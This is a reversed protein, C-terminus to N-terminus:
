TDGRSGDDVAERGCCDRAAASQGVTMCDCACTNRCTGVQECVLGGQLDGEEGRKVYTVHGRSVHWQILLSRNVPARRYHCGSSGPGPASAPIPPDLPTTLPLSPVTSRKLPAARCKARNSQGSKAGEM